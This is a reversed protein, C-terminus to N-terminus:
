RIVLFNVKEDMPGAPAVIEPNMKGPHTVQTGDRMLFRRNFHIGSVQGSGHAFQSQRRAGWANTVADAIRLAVFSAYDPDAVAMFTSLSAGGQHTHSASIIVNEKAIGTQRAIVDRAVDATKRVIVGADIGVLAVQTTGDDIVCASALLPDHVGV